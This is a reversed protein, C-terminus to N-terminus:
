KKAESNATANLVGLEIVDLAGDLVKVKSSAKMVFYAKGSNTEALEKAHKLAEQKWHYSRTSFGDDKNWVIWFTATNFQRNIKIEDM